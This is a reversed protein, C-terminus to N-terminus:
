STQCCFKEANLIEISNPTAQNRILSRRFDLEGSKKAVKRKPMKQCVPVLQRIQTRCFDERMTYRVFLYCTDVKFQNKIKRQRRCNTNSIPPLLRYFHLVPTGDFFQNVILIERHCYSNANSVSPHYYSFCYTTRHHIRSM